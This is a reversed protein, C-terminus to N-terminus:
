RLIDDVQSHALLMEQFLQTQKYHIEQIIMSFNTFIQVNAKSEWIRYM